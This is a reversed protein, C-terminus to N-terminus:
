KEQLIPIVSFFFFFFFFFFILFPPTSYKMEERYIDRCTRFKALTHSLIMRM